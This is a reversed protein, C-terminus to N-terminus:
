AQAFAEITGNPRSHITDTYLQQTRNDMCTMRSVNLGRGPIKKNQVENNGEEKGERLAM